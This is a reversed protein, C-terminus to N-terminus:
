EKVITKHILTKIHSFSLYKKSIKDYGHICGIPEYAENIDANQGFFLCEPSFVSLITNNKLISLCQSYYYHEPYINDNPVFMNMELRMNGITNTSITNLCKLVFTRKRFCMGGGYVTIVNDDTSIMYDPAGIYDFDYIASPLPKFMFSDTQFIFLNEYEYKEFLSKDTLVNAYDVWSLEVIDLIESYFELDPLINKLYYISVLSGIFLFDYEDDLHHLVNVITPGLRYHCRTEILIALKNKFQLRRSIKYNYKDFLYKDVLIIKKNMNDLESSDYSTTM